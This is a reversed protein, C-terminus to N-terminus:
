KAVEPFFLVFILFAIFLIGLAAIFVIGVDSLESKRMERKKNKWVREVEEKSYDGHGHYLFKGGSKTGAKYNDYSDKAQGFLLWIALIVLFLVFGGILFMPLDNRISAAANATSEIVNEM